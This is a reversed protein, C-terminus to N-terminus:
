RGQWWSLWADRDGVPIDEGTLVALGAMAVRAQARNGLRVNQILLEIAQDRKEEPMFHAALFQHPFHKPDGLAIAGRLTKMPQDRIVEYGTPYLVERREALKMRQIPALQNDIQVTGPLLEVVVILERMVASTPDAPARFTAESPHEMHRTLPKVLRLTRSATRRTRGGYADYDGVSLTAQFRLGSRRTDELMVDHNPPTDLQFIFDVPQGITRGLQVVDIRSHKAAHAEFQLGLEATKFREIRVRAWEPANSRTKGALLSSLRVLDREALAEQMQNLISSYYQDAPTSDGSSGEAFPIVVAQLDVTQAEPPPEELPTTVCASVALLVIVAPSSAARSM